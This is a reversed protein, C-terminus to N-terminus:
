IMAGNQHTWEPRGYKEWGKCCFEPDLVGDNKCVKAPAAYPVVKRYFRGAHVVYFFRNGIDLRQLADERHRVLPREARGVQVGRIASM